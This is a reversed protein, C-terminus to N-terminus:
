APPGATQGAVKRRAGARAPAVRRLARGLGWWTVLALAEVVIASSMKSTGAERDVFRIPVEVIRAGQQAARYTMEIQFAYGDARIANLDMTQLLEARYVRFGSTMDRVRLGLMLASYVNGGRSLLRRHIAWQPISGGEVYRSGIVLDHDVMAGLLSPLAGPDHSLDSDMEVLVEAGAALGWAFGAKYADGLGSPSARRMVEISGLEEGVKEALDATGDPSGDDVVLISGDPVALRTRRLVQEISEAENYTPLVVLTRM